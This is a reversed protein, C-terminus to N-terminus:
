EENLSISVPQAPPEQPHALKDPDPETFNGSLPPADKQLENPLAGQDRQVESPGLTTLDGTNSQHMADTNPDDPDDPDPLADLARQIERQEEEADLRAKEKRRAEFADLRQGFRTVDDCLRRIDAIRAEQERQQISEIQGLAKAADVLLSTADARAVSDVIRETLASMSGHAIISGDAATLTFQPTDSM